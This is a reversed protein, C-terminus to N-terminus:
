FWEAFVMEVKGYKATKMKTWGVKDNVSEARASYYYEV